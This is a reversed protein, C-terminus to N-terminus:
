QVDEDNPDHRMALERWVTARPGLKGKLEYEVIDLVVTAQRNPKDGYRKSVLARAKDLTAVVIDFVRQQVDRLVVNM